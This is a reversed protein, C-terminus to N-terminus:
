RTFRVQDTVIRDVPLSRSNMGFYEQLVDVAVPVANSGWVGQEIVVAVAIQPNEAPAYAIFLADSSRGFQEGGTEPTGTKGAVTINSPFDRFFRYATGYSESVVAEMSLKVYDITGDSLPLEVYEPNTQKVISGDHKRIEKIVHPTFRKGGNALTSTFNAIQLPTFVNDFQGISAQATDAARWDDNRLQRKTDRNARIGAVEGRLEIGTVEGLGFHKAWTDINDIRTRVGLEHFYINCSTAMARILDLSGHSRGWNIYDLCRFEWGGIEHKGNCRIIDRGKSIVGTELAAVAPIPKYISGPIYRGQIARNILPTDRNDSSTLEEKIRQAERDESDALFVAPDYTPYSVMALVEGSNVDIAVVSGASADGFNRKYDPSSKIININKELSELAVKQLKSDITLVIDNGPVAPNSSLEATLRNNSDVEVRKQGNIGRLYNEQTLEIGTKGLMDNLKYGSDKLRDYENRDIVGIYGLVHAYSSADIYRRHPVIDIVVGPFEFHREELQAVTQEKVDKAILLPNSATYGRILMDYRVTMIKYAEEDSYKEDIGFKENRFFTFVDYPTELKDLDSEKNIIDKKWRELTQESNKLTSSYDIPNFTLFKSLNKEYSDGNKEFLEILKLIMENLQPETLRARAIQVAYGMRNVAIPLGNRDVINGRSAVIERERIIRRQSKQSHEKGHIIQLNILQFIIMSFALVFIIIIIVFRQNKKENM